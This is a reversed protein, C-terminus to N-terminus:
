FQVCKISNRITIETVCAGASKIFIGIINIILVVNKDHQHMDVMLDLVDTVYAEILHTPATGRTGHTKATRARKANRKWPASRAVMEYQAAM